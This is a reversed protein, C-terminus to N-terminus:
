SVVCKRLGGACRCVRRRDSKRHAATRDATTHRALRLDAVCDPVGRM